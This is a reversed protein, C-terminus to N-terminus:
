TVTSAQAEQSTFVLTGDSDADVAIADGDGYEGKLLALAIPDSM